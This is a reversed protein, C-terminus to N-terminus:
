KVEKESLNMFVSSILGSQPIIFSNLIYMVLVLIIVYNMYNKYLLYIKICSTVTYEPYGTSFRLTLYDIVIVAVTFYFYLKKMKRFLASANKM